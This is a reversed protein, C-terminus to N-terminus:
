RQLNKARRQFYTMPRLLYYLWILRDPLRLRHWDGEHHLMSLFEYALYRPSPKLRVDHVLHSAVYHHGAVSEPTVHRTSYRIARDAQARARRNEAARGALDGPMTLGTIAATLLVSADFLHENGERRARDRVRQLQADDLKRYLAALDGIWKWREWCHRAAHIGVYYVLDEDGLTPMTTQGLPVEACNRWLTDFDTALLHPNRDLAYHSEVITGSGPHRFTRHHRFRALIGAQRPTLPPEETAPVCGTAELIAQFRATDDPHVCLDLDFAERVFPNGYLRLSLTVGKLALARIHQARAAAAIGSLLTLQAMTKLSCEREAAEIPLKIGISGAPWGAERLAAAMLPRMKHQWALNPVRSWDIGRFLAPDWTRTAGAAWDAALVAGFLQHEKSFVITPKLRGFM